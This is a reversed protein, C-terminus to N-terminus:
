LAVFYGTTFMLGLGLAFGVLNGASIMSEGIAESNQKVLRGVEWVVQLIAGVGAALFVTGLVPDFAFGGIWTGVVAPAGAVLVFLVFHKLAPRRDAVPAAIGIGETVNHLTFGLILYAGLAAEGGAYAAGIALGEGFNHLGIGLAILYAIRLPSQSDRGGGLQGTMLLGGLVLATIAVVMSTGQWFEAIEHAFELADLWTGVALYVLLGVTLSLVGNMVRRSLRSLFPFWLLGLAIPLIGVYFGVLGFRGFLELNREPDETAVPIEESFTAGIDTLLTIEHAETEVWHYPITIVASQRPELVSSPSAEFQWYAEDVMVQAIKVPEPGDNVVRVEITGPEPLNVRKFHLKQVPPGSLHALGGGTSVIVGVLGGLLVFPVLAILLTRLSSRNKEAAPEDTTETEDSM